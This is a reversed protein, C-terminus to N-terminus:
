WPVIQSERWKIPDHPRAKLDWDYKEVGFDQQAVLM